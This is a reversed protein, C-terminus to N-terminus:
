DTRVSELALDATPRAQLRVESGPVDSRAELIRHDAHVPVRAMVVEVEPTTRGSAIGPHKPFTRVRGVHADPHIEGLDPIPRFRFAVQVIQDAARRAKSFPL